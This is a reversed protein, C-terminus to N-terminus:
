KRRRRLLAIAGLGLACLSAPEPVVQVTAQQNASVFYFDGYYLGGIVGNFGTYTGAADGAQASFQSHGDTRSDGPAIHKDFWDGNFGDFTLENGNGDGFGAVYWSTSVFDHGTINNTITMSVQTAEGPNIVSPTAFQAVTVDLKQIVEMHLGFSALTGTASSNAGGLINVSFDYVGDAVAASVAGDRFASNFYWTHDGSIQTGLTYTGSEAGHYDFSTTPTNIDLAAPFGAGTVLNFSNIYLPADTSAIDLRTDYGNSSGFASLNTVDRFASRTDGVELNITQALAGTVDLVAASATLM